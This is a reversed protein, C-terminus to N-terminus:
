LGLWEIWENFSLPKINNLECENIYEYYAISM